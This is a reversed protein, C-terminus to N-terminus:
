YESYKTQLKQLAKFLLWIKMFCFSQILIHSFFESQFYINQNQLSASIVYHKIYFM